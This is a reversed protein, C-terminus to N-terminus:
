MSCISSVGLFLHPMQLCNCNSFFMLLTLLYKCFTYIPKTSFSLINTRFLIHADQLFASSFPFNGCNAISSCIHCLAHKGITRPSISSSSLSTDMLISNAFILCHPYVHAWIPNIPGITLTRTLISIMWFADGCDMSSIIVITTAKFHHNWYLFAYWIPFTHTNMTM